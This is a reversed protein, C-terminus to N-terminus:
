LEKVLDFCRFRDAEVGYTGDLNYRRVISGEGYDDGEIVVAAPSGKLDTALVKAIRNDRTLYRKGTQILM